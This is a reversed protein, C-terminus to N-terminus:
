REESKSTFGTLQSVVWCSSSLLRGVPALEPPLKPCVCALAPPSFCSRSSASSSSRKLALM